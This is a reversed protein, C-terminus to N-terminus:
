RLDFPLIPLIPFGFREVHCTSLRANYLHVAWTPRNHAADVNVIFPIHSALSKSVRKTVNWCQTLKEGNKGPLVGVNTKGFQVVDLEPTYADTSTLDVDKYTVCLKAYLLAHDKFAPDVFQSKVDEDYWRYNEPHLNIKQTTKIDCGVPSPSVINTIPANSIVQTKEPTALNSSASDKYVTDVDSAISSTGYISIIPLLLFLTHNSIRHYKKM